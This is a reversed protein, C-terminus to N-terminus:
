NGPDDDSNIVCENGDENIVTVSWRKVQLNLVDEIVKKTRAYSYSPADHENGALDKIKGSLWRRLNHMDHNRKTIDRNWRSFYEAHKKIYDDNTIRLKYFLLRLIRGLPHGEKLVDDRDFMLNSVLPDGLDPLKRLSSSM